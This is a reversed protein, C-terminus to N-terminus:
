KYGFFYWYGQSLKLPGETRQETEPPSTISALDLVTDLFDM